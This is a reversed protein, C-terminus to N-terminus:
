QAIVCNVSRGPLEQLGHKKLRPTVDGLFHAFSFRGSVKNEYITAHDLVHVTYM